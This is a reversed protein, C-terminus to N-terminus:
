TVAAQLCEFEQGFLQLLVEPDPMIGADVNLGFVVQDNYSIFSFGVGIRGSQPVAAMISFIPKGALFLPRRPGPVNTAVVTGKRDFIKIALTEGWNPLVGIIKLILYTAAYEASAKLRDMTQKVSGLRDLPQGLSVPLTLFVMGFKNGLEDDIARTRLNVLVFARLDRQRKEGHVELYRRIAGAGVAMLVDNTTAHKVRAIKRIESLPFPESWLVKKEKGLPAKLISPPDPKRFVVQVAALVTEFLEPQSHLAVRRTKSLGQDAKTKSAGASADIGGAPTQHAPSVSESASARTMQMFIQMLSIGDAICHHVRTIAVSGAPFNDVVTMQWLPHNFDLPENVKENILESLAAEDAPQRLEKREVHDEVRYGPVDEWYARQFLQKPQVIRQRFRRFRLLHDKLVQVLRDVDVKGQFHLVVTIMMPNTPDDMRLWALDVNNLRIKSL